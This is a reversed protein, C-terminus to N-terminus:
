PLNGPYHFPSCVMTKYSIPEIFSNIIEAFTEASVRARGVQSSDRNMCKEWGSCAREMAPVRMDLTCRNEVYNRSCQSIEALIQASFEEVKQDVDRRITLYFCFLAYLLLLILSLNFFIQLYQSAILPIDRHTSAWPTGSSGWTPPPAYDTEGFESGSDEDDTIVRASPWRQHRRPRLKTIAGDHYRGRPVEGRGTIRVPTTSGFVILKSGRRPTHSAEPTTESDSQPGPNGVPARVPSSFIDPDKSFESMDLAASRPTTSPLPRFQPPPPRPTQYATKPFPFHQSAPPTLMPLKSPTSSQFAALSGPRSPWTPSTLKLAAFPLSYFLLESKKAPTEHLSNGMSSFRTFPSNPDTPGTPADYQFDM